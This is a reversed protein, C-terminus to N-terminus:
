NHHKNPPPSFKSRSTSTQSFVATSVVEILQPSHDDFPCAVVIRYTVDVIIVILYRFTVDNVSVWRRKGFNQRHQVSDVSYLSVCIHLIGLIQSYHDLFKNCNHFSHADFLLCLWVYSKEQLLWYRSMYHFCCITYNTKKSKKVRNLSNTPHM